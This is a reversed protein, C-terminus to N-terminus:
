IIGNEKLFRIQSDDQLKSEATGSNVMSRSSLDKARSEVPKKKLRESFVEWAAHHDAYETINGNADKPSLKEITKRFGEQIKEAESNKSTMDVGYTDEIDEIMGRVRAVERNEIESHARQEQRIQELARETARSEVGKLANKLLETAATAEPSDTGYIRDVGDLYKESSNEGLFKSTESLAQLRSAMYINAEREAQLKEELRRHKRNKFGDPTEDETKEEEKAPEPPVPVDLVDKEEVDSELDKLFQDQENMTKGM